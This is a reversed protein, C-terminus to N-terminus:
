LCSHIYLSTKLILFFIFGLSIFLIILLEM